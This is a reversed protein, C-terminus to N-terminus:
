RVLGMYSELTKLMITELSDDTPLKGEDFILGDNENIYEAFGLSDLNNIGITKDRGHFNFVIKLDDPEFGDIQGIGTGTLTRNVVMSHLIQPLNNFRPHFFIREEKECLEDAHDEEFYKILALKKISSEAFLRNIYEMPAIPDAHFSGNEDITKAFEKLKPMLLTKVGSIGINEFIILGYTIDNGYPIAFMVHYIRTNAHFPQQEFDVHGTRTNTITANTGFDGYKLSFYIYKYFDRGERQVGKKQIIKHLGIAKGRGEDEHLSRDRELFVQMRDILDNTGCSSLNYIDGKRNRIKFKNVSLSIEPM